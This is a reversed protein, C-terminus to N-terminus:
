KQLALLFERRIRDGEESDLGNCEGHSQMVLREGAKYIMVALLIPGGRGARGVIMVGEGAHSGDFTLGQKEAIVAAGEIARAIAPDSNEAPPISRPPLQYNGTLAELRPIRDYVAPTDERPEARCGAMLLGFGVMAAFLQNRPNM